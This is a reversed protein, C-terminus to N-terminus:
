EQEKEKGKEKDTEAGRGWKPQEAAVKRNLIRRRRFMAVFGVLGVLILIYGIPVARADLDFAGANLILSVRVLPLEEVDAREVTFVYNEDGDVPDITAVDARYVIGGQPSASKSAANEFSVPAVLVTRGDTIATITLVATGEETTFPTSTQMEVAVSVPAESPALAVEAPTFGSGQGFVPFIGIEYGSVNRVAWPYGVGLALGALLIILFFFRM